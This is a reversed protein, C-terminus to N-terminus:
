RVKTFVGRLMSLFGKKKVDLEPTPTSLTNNVVFPVSNPVDSYGFNFSKTKKRRFDYYAGNDTAGPAPYELMMGKSAWLTENPSVVEAVPFDLDLSLQNLMFSISSTQDTTRVGNFVVNANLTHPAEALRAWNQSHSNIREGGIFQATGGAYSSFTVYVPCGRDIFFESITVRPPGAMGGMCVVSRFDGNIGELDMFDFDNPSCAYVVGVTDAKYRTNGTSYFSCMNTFRIKATQNGEVKVPTTAVFWCEKIRTESVTHNGWWVSCREDVLFGYTEPGALYFKCREITDSFAQGGSFDSFTVGAIATDSKFEADCIKDKQNQIYLLPIDTQLKRGDPFISRHTFTCTKNTNGIIRGFNVPNYPLIMPCYLDYNLSGYDITNKGDVIQKQIHNLVSAVGNVTPPVPRIGTNVVDQLIFQQLWLPWLYKPLSGKYDLVPQRYMETPTFGAYVYFGCSGMPVPYDRSVGLYTGWTPSAQLADVLLPTSPRTERGLMDVITISVFVPRNPISSLVTLDPGIASPTVPIRENTWFKKAGVPPTTEWYPSDVSPYNGQGLWAYGNTNYRDYRAGCHGYAPVSARPYVLGSPLSNIEWAGRMEEQMSESAYPGRKVILFGSSPEDVPFRPMISVDCQNDLKIQSYAGGKALAWNDGVPITAFDYYGPQLVTGVNRFLPKLQAPDPIKPSWTYGAPIAM